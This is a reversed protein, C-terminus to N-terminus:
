LTYRFYVPSHHWQNWTVRLNEALSRLKDTIGHTSCM